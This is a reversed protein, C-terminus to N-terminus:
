YGRRAPARQPGAVRGRVFALRWCAAVNSLSLTSLLNFVETAVAERLATAAQQEKAERAKSDTKKLKVSALAGPAFM